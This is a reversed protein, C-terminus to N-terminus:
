VPDPSFSSAASASVQGYTVFGCVMLQCAEGARDVGIPGPSATCTECLLCARQDDETWVRSITSQGEDNDNTEVDGPTHHVHVSMPVSKRDSEVGSVMSM